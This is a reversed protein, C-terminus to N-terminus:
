AVVFYIYLAHFIGICLSILFIFPRKQPKSFLFGIIFAVFLFSLFPPATKKIIYFLQALFNEEIPYNAVFLEKFINQGNVEIKKFPLDIIAYISDFCFGIIILFFLSWIFLQLFLWQNHKKRSYSHKFEEFRKPEFFLLRFIKLSKAM